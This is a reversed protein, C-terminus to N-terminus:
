DVRCRRGRTGANLGAAIDARAGPERRLSGASEGALGLGIGQRQHASFRSSETPELTVGHEPM